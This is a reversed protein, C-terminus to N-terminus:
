NVLLSGCSEPDLHLSVQGRAPQAVGLREIHELALQLEGHRAEGPRLHEHVGAHDRHLTPRDENRSAGTGPLGREHARQDLGSGRIVRVLVRHEIALATDM